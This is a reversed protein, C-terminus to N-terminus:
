ACDSLFWEDEDEDQLGCHTQEPMEDMMLDSIDEAGPEDISATWDNFAKMFVETLKDESTTWIMQDGEQSFEFAESLDVTFQTLDCPLAIEPIEVPDGPEPTDEDAGTNDEAIDDVPDEDGPDQEAVPDDTPDDEAVPTDDPEETEPDQETVPDDSPDDEAVPADGPQDTEPDQETVPDDEAVPIDDPTDTPDDADDDPDVTPDDAPMPDDDTNDAGTGPDVWASVDADTSGFVQTVMVAEFDGNGSTFDGIEIGIGIDEADPNLINARHGPSQMLGAHIQAVDDDYGADGRASQWGINELAMYNGELSYGADDMRESPSSGGAGSHSFQNSNLMWQSHTEAADNLLTILRLPALGAAAREGNILDLMGLELANANSM